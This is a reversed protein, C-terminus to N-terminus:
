RTHEKGPSQSDRITYTHEDKMWCRFRMRWNKKRSRHTHTHERILFNIHAHMHCRLYAINTTPTPLHIYHHKHTHRHITMIFLTQNKESTLSWVLLCRRCFIPGVGLQLELLYKWISGFGKKKNNIWKDVLSCSLNTYFPTAVVANTSVSWFLLVFILGFTIVHKKWDRWGMILLLRRGWYRPPLPLTACSDCRSLFQDKM